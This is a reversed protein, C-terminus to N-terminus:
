SAAPPVRPAGTRRTGESVSPAVNVEAFAVVFTAIGASVVRTGFIFLQAITGAILMGVGMADTYPGFLYTLFIAQLVYFQNFAYTLLRSDPWRTRALLGALLFVVWIPQFIWVVVAYAIGLVERDLFRAADPNALPYRFFAIAMTNVLIMTLAAAFVREARSGELLRLLSRLRTLM